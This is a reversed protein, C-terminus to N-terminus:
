QAGRRFVIVPVTKLLIWLDHLASKRELYELDLRVKRRVDEVCQDYHQNIQAWGTIGPLVRQRLPYDHIESRLNMFLTPQEPRPGVINMDGRLVNFLQPLEDLRYKRLVRGISTVRDDNPKAWVQVTASPDARMTRFKYITFLRGGYDVKRRGSWEADSRADRRDIGVRTQKYIIPGRSTLKVLVALLLMVPSLVILLSLALAVNLWRRARDGREGEVVVADSERRAFVTMGVFVRGHSNPTDLEVGSTDFAPNM